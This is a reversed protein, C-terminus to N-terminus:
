VFICTLIWAVAGGLWLMGYKGMEVKGDKLTFVKVIDYVIKLCYLISLMLIFVKLFGLISLILTM